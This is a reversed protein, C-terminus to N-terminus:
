NVEHLEFVQCVKFPLAYRKAVSLMVEGYPINELVGYYKSTDSNSGYLLCLKNSTRILVTSKVNDWFLRWLQDMTISQSVKQLLSKNSNIKIISNKFWAKTESEVLRNNLFTQEEDFGLFYFCREM